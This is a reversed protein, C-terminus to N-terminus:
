GLTSLFSAWTTILNGFDWLLCTISGRKVNWEVRDWLQRRQRTNAKLTVCSSFLMQMLGLNTLVASDWTGYYSTSLSDANLCFGLASAVNQQAGSCCFSPIQGCPLQRLGLLTLCAWCWAHSKAWVCQHESVCHQNACLPRFLSLSLVFLAINLSNWSATFSVLHRGCDFAFPSACCFSGPWWLGQQSPILFGLNTEPLFGLFM